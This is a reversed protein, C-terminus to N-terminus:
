APALQKVTIKQYVCTPEHACPVNQPGHTVADVLTCAGPLMRHPRARGSSYHRRPHEYSNEHLQLDNCIRRVRSPSMVTKVTSATISADRASMAARWAGPRAAAVPLCLASRVAHPSGSRCPVHVFVVVVGSSRGFSSAPLDTSVASSRA